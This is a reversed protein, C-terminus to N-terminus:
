LRRLLDLPIQTRRLLSNLSDGFGIVETDLVGSVGDLGPIVLEQGVSLVNPDSINNAVMLDNLSVNFRAAISSLTDEPQVVYVPGPSQAAAPQFSLLIGLILAFPILRRLM